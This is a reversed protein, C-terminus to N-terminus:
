IVTNQKKIVDYFNYINDYKKIFEDNVMLKSKYENSSGFTELKFEKGTKKTVWNVLEPLNNFDFWIINPDNNHYTSLPSFIPMLLSEVKSDYGDYDLRNLFEKVLNVKSDKNILNKTEYFLVDDLDLELLKNYLELNNNRFLEGICHNFYSIFRDYRNRRVSIIEYNKGFTDQLATITEHFHNIQYVLDMNSTKTLDIHNYIEDHTSKAHKISFGSRISSIFFSTSACRPLSLYIFKNDVLM